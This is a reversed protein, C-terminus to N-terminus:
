RQKGYVKIGDRLIENVLDINNNLESSRILDIKKHLCLRIKEILGIFKLGTLSSCVYLDIDSNEKAMGKAYSGFLYCFDIQGSYEKEFLDTLKNKIEDISLLGKEENIECHKNIIEIFSARKFSSGYNDDSEYRRLTRVPVGVISAAELQSLGYQKRAELLTM